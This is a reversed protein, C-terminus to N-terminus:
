GQTTLLLQQKARYLLLGLAGTGLLWMLPYGYNVGQLPQYAPMFAHRSLEILHLMPNWLLWEVAERPLIDVNFIVGSLLYLPMMGLRIVTRLRPRDHSWVALLVGCTLGFLWILLSTLVVRLLDAPVVHYGLWGLAGLSVTYVILSMLAEVVGRATLADLPQVQRYAFLGRNSEISDLLRTVLKQFLFFPVLGVVLFVPFELSGRSASRIGIVIFMVMAVHALPELVTWVASVWQGGVRVRLERVILAFLVARQVDWPSRRRQRGGPLTPSPNVADQM